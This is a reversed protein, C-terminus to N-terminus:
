FLRCKLTNSARIHKECSWRRRNSYCHCYPAPPIRAALRQMIKGKSALSITFVSKAYCKVFHTFPWQEAGFSCVRGIAGEFREEYRIWSCVSCRLIGTSLHTSRFERSCGHRVHHRSAGMDDALFDGQQHFRQVEPPHLGNPLVPQRRHHPLCENLM